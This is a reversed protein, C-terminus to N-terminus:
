RSWSITFLHNHPSIILLYELLLQVLRFEQLIPEIIIKIKNNYLININKYARGTSRQKKCNKKIKERLRILDNNDYPKKGLLLSFM